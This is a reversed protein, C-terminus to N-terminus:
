ARLFTHRNIVAAVKHPDPRTPDTPDAAWTPLTGKRIKLTLPVNLYFTAGHTPDPLMRWLAAAAAWWCREQQGAAALRSEAIPRYDDNWCSFAEHPKSDAWASGEPGLIVHRVPLHWTDRRNVIVYAVALKGEDPEGDAELYVTSAVLGLDDWRDPGVILSFEPVSICAFKDSM